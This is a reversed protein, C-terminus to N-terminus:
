REGEGCLVTIVHHEQIHQHRVQVAKRQTRFNTLRCDIVLRRDDKDGPMGVRLHDVFAAIATAAIEDGFGEQVGLDGEFGQDKGQALAELRRAARDAM